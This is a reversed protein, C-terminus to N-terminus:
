WWGAPVADAGFHVQDLSPVQVPAGCQGAAVKVAWGGVWGDAPVKCLLLRGPGAAALEAPSSPLLSALMAVSGTKVWAIGKIVILLLAVAVSAIAAINMLREKGSRDLSNDTTAM